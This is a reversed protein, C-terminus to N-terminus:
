RARHVCQATIPPPGPSGAMDNEVAVQGAPAQGQYATALASVTGQPVGEPGNCGDVSYINYFPPSNNNTINAYFIQGQSSSNNPCLNYNYNSGSCNPLQNNVNRCLWGSMATAPYNFTPAAGAGQDVISQALWSSNSGTTCTSSNTWANIYNVDNGLYTPALTWPADTGLQCGYQGSPCVTVSPPSQECGQNLDSLVPGSILEVNDLYTGAGYYALSYAVAASGASFGQACMGAKANGNQGTTIPLYINEYVFNLFTAPRCAANQINANTTHEWATSWGIEVVGYGQSAYYTLMELEPEEKVASTGDGGDFYTIVGKPVGTPAVYGYIFNINDVNPCGAVTASHCVMGPLWDGGGCAVMLTNGTITGLQLSGGSSAHAAPAPVLFCLAVLAVLSICFTRLAIGTTSELSISRKLGSKHSPLM